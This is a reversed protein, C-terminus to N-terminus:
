VKQLPENNKGYIRAGAKKLSDIFKNYENIANTATEYRYTIFHYALYLESFIAQIDELIKNVEDINEDTIPKGRHANLKEHLDSYTNFKHMMEADLRTLLDEIYNTKM